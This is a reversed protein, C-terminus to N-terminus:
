VATGTADVWQSGDWWVAKGLDTDFGMYGTAIGTPRDATAFNVIGQSGSHPNASNIHNNLATTSASGSHPNSKEEHADTYDRAYTEANSEATDAKQQAGAPTEAGIMAPTVPDSGGAAHTNAHKPPLNSQKVIEEIQLDARQDRARTIRKIKQTSM